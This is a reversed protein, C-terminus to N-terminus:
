KIRLILRDKKVQAIIAQKNEMILTLYPDGNHMSELFRRVTLKRKVGKFM